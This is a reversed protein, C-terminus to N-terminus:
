LFYYILRSLWDEKKQSMIGHMRNMPCFTWLDLHFCLLQHLIKWALGNWLISHLYPWCPTYDLCLLYFFSDNIAFRKKTETIQLSPMSKTHLDTESDAEINLSTNLLRAKKMREKVIKKDARRRELEEKEARSVKTIQRSFFKNRTIPCYRKKKKKSTSCDNLITILGLPSINFYAKSLWLHCFIVISDWYYILRLKISNKLRYFHYFKIDGGSLACPLSYKGTKQHMTSLFLIKKPKLLDVGSKSEQSSLLAIFPFIFLLCM